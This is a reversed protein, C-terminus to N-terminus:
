CRLLYRSCADSLTLPDIRKGDLTRGGDKSIPAGCV